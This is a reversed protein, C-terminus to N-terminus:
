PILQKLSEQRQFLGLLLAVFYVFVADIFLSVAARPVWVAAFPIGPWFVAQLVATNLTSVFLGSLLITLTLPLIPSLAEKKVFYKTLIFDIALLLLAFGAAGLPGWTVALRMGALAEGPYRTGQTREILLRSTLHMDSTDVTQPDRLDYFHADIGDASLVILNLSGFLLLLLAFGLLSAQLLTRNKNRLGRWLLGRLAGGATVVLTMWPLFAGTPRLLFGLLDFLGAVIAGYLPGFFIAPLIAFITGINVRVGNQGYLPLYFTMLLRLVLAISLFLAAIAIRRTHLASKSM